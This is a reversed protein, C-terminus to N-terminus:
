PQAPPEASAAARVPAGQPGKRPLLTAPDVYGPSAVIKPLGTQHHAPPTARASVTTTTAGPRAQVVAPTNVRAQAQVAPAGPDNKSADSGSSRAKVTGASASAAKAAPRAQLALTSREEPTLAQYAKWKAQREDAPVERAAQFQMRAETREDPTMRAWEAMRAQVRKREDEPMKPFRSAVEIWKQKRQADIKAWDRQLPALSQQQQVTLSAWVPGKEPAPAAWASL